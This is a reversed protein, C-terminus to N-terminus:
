KLIGIGIFSGQWSLKKTLDVFNKLSAKEISWGVAAAEQYLM